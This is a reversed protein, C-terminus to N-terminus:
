TRRVNWLWMHNRMATTMSATTGLIQVPMRIRALARKGGQTAMVWPGMWCTVPPVRWKMLPWRAPTQLRMNLQQCLNLTGPTNGWVKLFWCRHLATLLYNFSFGHLPFLSRWCSWSGCMRPRVSLIWKAALLHGRCCGTSKYFSHKVSLLM